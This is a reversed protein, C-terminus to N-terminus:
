LDAVTAPDDSFRKFRVLNCFPTGDARVEVVPVRHGHATVEGILFQPKEYDKGVRHFLEYGAAMRAAGPMQSLWSGPSSFVKAAAEAGYVWPALLSRQMEHFFYLM